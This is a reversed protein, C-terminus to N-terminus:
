CDSFWWQKIKRFDIRGPRISLLVAQTVSNVSPFILFLMLGSGTQRREKGCSEEFVLFATQPREELPRRTDDWLAQLGQPRCITKGERWPDWAKAAGWGLERWGRRSLSGWWQCCLLQDAKESMWSHKLGWYYAAARDKRGEKDPKPCACVCVCACM